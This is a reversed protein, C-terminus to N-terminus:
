CCFNGCFIGFMFAMVCNEIISNYTHKYLRLKEQHQKNDNILKQIKELNLKAQQNSTLFENALEHSSKIGSPANPLCLNTGACWSTYDIIYRNSGEITQEISRFGNTELFSNLRGNDNDLIILVDDYEVDIDNLFEMFEKAADKYTKYDTDEYINTENPLLLPGSEFSDIIENDCCFTADLIRIGKQKEDIETPQTTIAIFKM